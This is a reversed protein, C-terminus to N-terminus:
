YFPIERAYLVHAPNGGKKIRYSLCVPCYLLVCLDTFSTQIHDSGWNNRFINPARMETYSLFTLIHDWLNCSYVQLSISSDSCCSLFYKRFPEKCGETIPSCESITFSDKVKKVRRHMKSASSKGTKGCKHRDCLLFWLFATLDLRDLSSCNWRVLIFMRGALIHTCCVPMKLCM